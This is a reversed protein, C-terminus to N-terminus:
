LWKRKDEGWMLKENIITFFDRGKLKVVKVSFDAKKITLTISTDMEQTDSDKSLWFKGTRANVSLELQSPQIVVPSVTLAHSAIPTIIMAEMNPVVIPGGCSLSYATSGTPTSIILGDSWYTNLFKGDVKVEVNIMGSPYTRHICVDNLAYSTTGDPYRIELLMRDELEYNEHKLDQLVEALNDINLNSLFGLKGMNIGLIPVNMQSTAAANLFTGDGGISMLFDVKKAKLDAQSVLTIQHPFTKQSGVMEQYFNDYVLVEECYQCCLDVIHEFIEYTLQRTKNGYLVVRM